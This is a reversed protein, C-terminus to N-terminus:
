VVPIPPTPGLGWALVRSRENALLAPPAGGELLAGVIAEFREALCSWASGQEFLVAWGGDPADVWALSLDFKAPAELGEINHAEVVGSAGGGDLGVNFAVLM